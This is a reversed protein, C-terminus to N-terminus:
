QARRKHFQDRADDQSTAHEQQAAPKSRLQASTDATAPSVDDLTQKAADEGVGNPEHGYTAPPM